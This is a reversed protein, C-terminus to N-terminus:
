RIELIDPGGVTGPPPGVRERYAGYERLAALNPATVDLPIINTAGIAGVEDDLPVEFYIGFERSQQATSPLLRVITRLEPSRAPSMSVLAQFPFQMRGSLWDYWERSRWARMSESEARPSTKWAMPQSIIKPHKLGLFPLLRNAEKKPLAMGYGMACYIEEEHSWPSLYTLSIKGNQGRYYNIGGVNLAIARLWPGCPEGVYPDWERLEARDDQIEGIEFLSLRAECWLRLQERAAPPFRSTRAALYEELPSWSDGPLGHWFFEEMAWHKMDPLYGLLGKSFGSELQELKSKGPDQTSSWEAFDLKVM